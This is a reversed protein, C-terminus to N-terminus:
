NIDISIVQTGDYTYLTELNLKSLTDLTERHPHGYSNDKACSVIAVNANAARLFAESNSTSSGHHGLKIIDCDLSTNQALLESEIEKEADGMMLIRTDGADVMCVLSYNNTNSYSTNPSPSLFTFTAGSDLIITDLIEPVVMEAQTQEVADLMREYVGTNATRNPVYLTETPFAQLVSAVGGIHDEHPHTAIVATLTSIGQENLYDVVVEAASVPGADILIAQDGSIFLTSDGQGVDIFHISTDDTLLGSSTNNDSSFSSLLGTGEILLLAAVAVICVAPHLRIQSQKRKAM